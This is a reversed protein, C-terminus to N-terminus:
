GMYILMPVGALVSTLSAAQEAEKAALKDYTMEELLARLESRLADMEARADNVM